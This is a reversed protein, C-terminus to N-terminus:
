MKELAYLIYAYAVHIDEQTYTSFEVGWPDTMSLLHEYEEFAIEQHFQGGFGLHSNIISFASKDESFQISASGYEAGHSHDFGDHGPHASAVSAAAAIVLSNLKM